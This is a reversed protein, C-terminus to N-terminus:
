KGDRVGDPINRRWVFYLEGRGGDRVRDSVKGRRVALLGWRKGDGGGVPVDRGHM